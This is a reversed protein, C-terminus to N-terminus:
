QTQRALAVMTESARAATYLVVVIAAAMTLTYRVKYKLGTHPYVPTLRGLIRDALADGRIAGEALDRKVLASGAMTHLRCLSLCRALGRMTGAHLVHENVRRGGSTLAAACKDRQADARTLCSPAGSAVIRQGTALAAKSRFYGTRACRMLTALPCAAAACSRDLKWCVAGMSGPAYGSACPKYTGFVRVNGNGEEFGSYRWWAEPHDEARALFRVVGGSLHDCMALALSWAMFMLTIVNWLCWEPVVSGLAVLVVAVYSLVHKSIILLFMVLTGLVLQFMKMLFMIPDSTIYRFYRIFSTIFKPLVAMIETMLRIAMPLVETILLLMLNPLQALAKVLRGISKFFGESTRVRGDTDIFVGVGDGQLMRMAAERVDSMIAQKRGERAM